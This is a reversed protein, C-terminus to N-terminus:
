PEEVRNREWEFPYCYVFQKDIDPLYLRVETTTNQKM